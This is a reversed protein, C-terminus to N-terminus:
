QGGTAALKVLYSEGLVIVVDVGPVRYEGESAEVDGFLEGFASAASEHRDRDPLWVKTAASPEGVEDIASAGSVVSVVNVGVYRLAVITDAAVRSVTRGAAAADAALPCHPQYM